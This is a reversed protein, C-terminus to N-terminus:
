TRAEKTKLIHVTYMRLALSMLWNAIFVIVILIISFACAQTFQLETMSELIRSTLLTWRVSILFITASIATMSHIFLYRLGTLVAPIILPM